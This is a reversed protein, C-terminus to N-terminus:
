NILARATLYFASTSNIKVTWFLTEYRQAKMWISTADTMYTIYRADIKNKETRAKKEGYLTDGGFSTRRQFLTATM